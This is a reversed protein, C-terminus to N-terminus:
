IIHCTKQKIPINNISFIKVIFSINFNDDHIKPAIKKNIPITENILVCGSNNKKENGM